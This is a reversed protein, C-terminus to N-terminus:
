GEVEQVKSAVFKGWLNRLAFYLLLAGSIPMVVFVIHMPLSLAPSRQMTGVQVMANGGIVMAAAMIITLIDMAIDLGKKFMGKAKVLLLDFAMHRGKYYAAVIGLFSMWIFIYRALEESWPLSAQLVYRFFVQMCILMMMSFMLGSCIWCILKFLLEDIKKM